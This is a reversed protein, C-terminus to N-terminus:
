SITAFRITTSVEIRKMDDMNKNSELKNEFDNVNLNYKYAKFAVQSLDLSYKYKDQLKSLKSSAQHLFM